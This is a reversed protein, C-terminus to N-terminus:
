AAFQPTIGLQMSVEKRVGDALQIGDLNPPRLEAFRALAQALRAEHFATMKEAHVILDLCQSDSM